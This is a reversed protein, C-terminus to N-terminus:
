NLFTQEGCLHAQAYITIPKLGLAEAASLTSLILSSFLGSAGIAIVDGRKLGAKVFINVLLAAFDSNTPTKKASLNGLTTTLPTWEEGILGSLNPDTVKNIQPGNEIRYNRIVEMSKKMIQATQVKTSYASDPALTKTKEIIFLESISIILIIIM